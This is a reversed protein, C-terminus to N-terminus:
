QKTTINRVRAQSIQKEDGQIASMELTGRGGREKELGTVSTLDLSNKKLRKGGGKETGGKKIQDTGHGGPSRSLRGGRKAGPLIKRNRLDVKSGSGGGGVEGRRGPRTPSLRFPRKTPGRKNRRDNEQGKRTKKFRRALAV